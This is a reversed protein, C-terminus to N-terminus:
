GASKNIDIGQIIVPQLPRDGQGTALRSITEVTHQGVTVRGFITHRGNLHTAPEVTIFFQSGNTGPGSNAMALIGPQDFLLSPVFEDQFQYGPGATGTGTPDGGQIMFDQIVRHFLVGDYFGDQALFVFNNVTVPTQAALLEVTFTGNNTRFTATFTASTDITMLPLQGYQKFTRGQATVLRPTPTLVAGPAPTAAPQSTTDAATPSPAPTPTGILCASTFVAAAIIAMITPLKM